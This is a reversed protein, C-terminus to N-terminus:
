TPTRNEDIDLCVLPAVSFLKARSSFIEGPLLGFGKVKSPLFHWTLLIDSVNDNNCICVSIRSIIEKIVEDQPIMFM